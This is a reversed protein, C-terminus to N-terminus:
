HQIIVCGPVEAAPPPPRKPSCRDSEGVDSHAPVSKLGGMSM